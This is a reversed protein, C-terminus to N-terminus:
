GGTSVVGKLYLLGTMRPSLSGKVEAKGAAFSSFTIAFAIQKEWALPGPLNFLLGWSYYPHQRPYQNRLLALVKGSYVLSAIDTLEPKSECSKQPLLHNRHLIRKQSAMRAAPCMQLGAKSGGVWGQKWLDLSFDCKRWSVQSYHVVGLINNGPFSPKIIVFIKEQRFSLSKLIDGVLCGLKSIQGCYTYTTM